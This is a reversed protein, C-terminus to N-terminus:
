QRGAREEYATLVIKDTGRGSNVAIETVRVPCALIEGVKKEISNEISKYLLRRNENVMATNDYSKIITAEMPNLVNLALITVTDGQISVKTEGSGRGTAEKLLTTFAKRVAEETEGKGGPVFIKKKKRKERIEAAVAAIKAELKAMDVPKLIYADIGSNVAELVKSVESVTSTVIIHCDADHERIERILEWGSVEPMLLDAILIDPWAERYIEMAERASAACLVLGGRRRLFLALNERTREDDEVYLITIDRFSDM